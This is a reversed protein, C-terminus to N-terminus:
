QYKYRYTIIMGVDKGLKSRLIETVKEKEFHSLERPVIISFKAYDGEPEHSIGTLKIDVTVNGVHIKRLDALRSYIQEDAVVTRTSLYLPIAIVAAMLLKLAFAASAYKTSAYGLIYFMAGSAVLIGVINALFLLFAESFIPWSGWGIGIGAVCLPPVLAVAIAVGALSEGVKSNAYGYAAAIGSLIAVALDLLTPHTRMSMQDTVHAFPLWWAYIASAALAITVSLLITKISQQMLSDDFLIPAMSFAVIPAMLPALIMAGIITPSSNQFLGTTAMLVSVLLLLLYSVSMKASARLKQFLEAFAEESAIPVLPLAKKTFFSVLDSEQPLNQVRLGEKEEGGACGKWGTVIKADSEVSEFVIEKAESEKGDITFHIPAGNGSKFILKDSKVTGIGAPLSETPNIKRKALLFRLKAAGIVSQPAYIVSAIRRCQNDSIKFFYQRKMHMVAESGVEILLSATSIEKEKETSIKLPFLRLSLLDNKLFSFLAKVGREKVWESQGASVCGIFLKENCLTVRDCMHTTEDAALKIAEKVETPVMYAEQCLPNKEYPVIVIKLDERYINELWQTFENDDTMVFITSGPVFSKKNKKFISSTTKIATAEEILTSIEEIRSKEIQHDHLFYSTSGM